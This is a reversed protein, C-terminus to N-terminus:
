QSGAPNKPISKSKSSMNWLDLAKSIIKDTMEDFDFMALWDILADASVNMAERTTMKSQMAMTFAIQEFREINTGLEEQKVTTLFNLMDVGFIKKAVFPTAANSTLELMGATTEIEIKM